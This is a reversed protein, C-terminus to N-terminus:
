RSGGLSGCQRKFVKARRGTADERVLLRKTLGICAKLFADEMANIVGVAENSMMSLMIANCERGLAMLVNTYSVLMSVAKEGKAAM